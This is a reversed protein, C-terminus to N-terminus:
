GLVKSVRFRIAVSVRVWVRIRLFKITSFTWSILYNFVAVARFLLLFFM